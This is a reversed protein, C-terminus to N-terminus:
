LSVYWQVTWWFSNLDPQGERSERRFDLGAELKNGDSFLYGLLPIWRSEWQPKEAGFIFLYENNAKFYFEGFDVNQGSLPLEITLRHRWRYEAPDDEFFTQDAAMRYAWRFSYARFVRAWQQRSRHVRQGEKFRLMYGLAFSQDLRFKRSVFATLDTRESRWGWDPKPEGPRHEALQIARHELNLQAKWVPNIRQSLNVGPLPGARVPRQAHLSWCFLGIAIGIIGRKL